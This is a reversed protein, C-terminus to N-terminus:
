PMVKAFLERLMAELVEPIVAKNLEDVMIKTMEEKPDADAGQSAIVLEFPLLGKAAEATWLPKIDRTVEIPEDGTIRLVLQMKRRLPVTGDERLPASM